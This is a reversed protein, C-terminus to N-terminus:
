RACRFGISDLITPVELGLHLTFIGAFSIDSGGSGRFYVNNSINNSSYIRGIGNSMNLNPTSPGMNDYTYLNTYNCQAVGDNNYFSYWNTGGCANSVRITNSNWTNNTRLNSTSPLNSKNVHEWVNGSMDWIKIGNSLVHLRNGIVGIGRPSNDSGAASSFIGSAAFSSWSMNDSIDVNGRYLGGNGKIGSTWNTGQQEANRAIAMWENNTILHYIGDTGCAQIAEGQRINAIPYDEAKSTIGGNSITQSYIDNDVGYDSEAWTKRLSNPQIKDSTNTFKAEYKMVAFGRCVYNNGNYSVERQYFIDKMDTGIGDTVFWRAPVWVFDGGQTVNDTVWKNCAAKANEDEDGFIYCKKSVEDYKLEAANWDAHANSLENSTYYCWSTDEPQAPQQETQISLSVGSAKSYISTADNVSLGLGTMMAIIGDKNDKDVIGGSVYEGVKNGLFVNMGSGLDYEGAIYGTLFMNPLYVFDNGVIIGRLDKGVYRYYMEDAYVGQVFATKYNNNEMMAMVKYTQRDSLLSYDYEGHIKDKPLKVLSSIKSVVGSGFKGQYLVVEGTYTVTNYSDPIPLSDSQTIQINLANQIVNLDSIRQADRGKSMWQTLLLFATAGLVAIIAIVIILEILTFSKLLKKITKAM